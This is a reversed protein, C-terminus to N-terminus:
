TLPNQPSTYTLKEEVQLWGTKALRNDIIETREDLSFLKSLIPLIYTLMQSLDEKGERSM